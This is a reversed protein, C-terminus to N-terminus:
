RAEGLIEVLDMRRHGVGSFFYLYFSDADILGAFSVIKAGQDDGGDEDVRGCLTFQGEHLDPVALFDGVATDEVHGGVNPHDTRM